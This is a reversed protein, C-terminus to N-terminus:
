PTPVYKYQQDIIYKNTRKDSIKNSRDTKIFSPRYIKKKQEILKSAHRADEITKPNWLKLESQIYDKLGYIYM